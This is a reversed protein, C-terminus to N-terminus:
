SEHGKQSELYKKYPTAIQNPLDDDYIYIPKLSALYGSAKASISKDFIARHILGRIKRINKKSLGIKSTKWNQRKLEEYQNPTLGDVFDVGYANRFYARIEEETKVVTKLQLGTIMPAIRDSKYYKIKERNVRFPTEGEILAIIAKIDKQKFPKSSSITIDDAYITIRRIGGKMLDDDILGIIKWLIGYYSVALNLCYPSTPAGQPLQGRYTILELMTEILEILIERTLPDFRENRCLKRFWRVRRAPLLPRIPYEKNRYRGIEKAIIKKFVDMLHEKKVTPFADKFDLRLVYLAKPYCHWRANDVYSAGPMFGTISGALPIRNFFRELLKRQFKKLQPNPINIIRKKGNNKRLIITHYDDKTALLSDIEEESYKLLDALLKKGTM